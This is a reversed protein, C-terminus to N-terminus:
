LNVGEKAAADLINRFTVLMKFAQQAEEENTSHKKITEWLEGLPEIYHDPDPVGNMFPKIKSWIWLCQKRSM